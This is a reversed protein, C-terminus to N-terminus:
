HLSRLQRGECNLSETRYPFSFFKCNPGECRYAAQKFLRHYYCVYGSYSRYRNQSQDYRSNRPWGNTQYNPQRIPKRWNGRANASIINRRCFIKEDRHAFSISAAMRIIGQQIQYSIRHPLIGQSIASQLSQNPSAM